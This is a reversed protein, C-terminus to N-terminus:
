DLNVRKDLIDTVDGDVGSGGFTCMDVWGQMRAFILWSRLRWVLARSKLAKIWSIAVM